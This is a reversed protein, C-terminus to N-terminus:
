KRVGDSMTVISSEAVFLLLIAAPSTIDVNGAPNLGGGPFTVNQTSNLGAWTKPNTHIAAAVPFMAISVGGGVDCFSAIPITVYGM